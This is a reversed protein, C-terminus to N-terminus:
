FGRLHFFGNALGLAGFYLNWYGDRQTTFVLSLLILTDYYCEQRRKGISILLQEWRWRGEM